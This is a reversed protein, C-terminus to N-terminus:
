GTSASVKDEVHKKKKEKERDEVRELVDAEQGLRVHFLFLARTLM